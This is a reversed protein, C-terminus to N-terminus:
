MQNFPGSDRTSCDFGYPVGFSLCYWVVCFAFLPGNLAVFYFFFFLFFVSRFRFLSPSFVLLLPIFTFYFVTLKANTVYKRRPVVALTSLSNVNHQTQRTNHTHAAPTPTKFVDNRQIICHRIIFCIVHTFNLRFPLLGTFIAKPWIFVLFCFSLFPLVSFFFHINSVARQEM